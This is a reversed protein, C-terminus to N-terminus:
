PLVALRQFYLFRDTTATLRYAAVVQSWDQDEAMFAQWDFPNADFYGSQRDIILLDPQHSLIDDINDGRNRAAIAALRACVAAERACDTRALRNIAGPVLWNAPYRSAWDADLALAVPPGAYVHSSLVIVGDVQGLGSAIRSIESVAGNSYLGRRVSGAVLGALAVAVALAAVTMGSRSAKIMLLVCGIMAFTRFPIAHYGFGTGQMLYSALGAGSLVLFVGAERNQGRAGLAVLVPVLMLLAEFQLQALLPGVESGYAGYVDRAIGLIETLYLPHVVAVYGVYALGLGLFTLNAASVVPWLSRLRVCHFVTVVIPFVVFHPKLCVGVAAFAASAVDQGRSGPASGIQRLAWPMALIVLLQERQAMNNLAPVVFAAAIGVLMLAAWAPSLQRDSGIIASCWWLSLFILLSLAIYQGNTDSVGLLDAFLLAPVTLYFNLPPNVEMVDVYLTAGGLWDRTAILYWATDHNLMRGWFLALVSVALLLPLVLGSPFLGITPTRGDFVWFRLVLFTMGPVLVAVAAMATAFSFGLHSSVVWVTGSSTALGFLSLFVFRLFQPGSRMEVGFTFRAHGVYSVLVAASFGALNAQQDSIALLHRLVLACLVHVVTALGGVGVFRTFQAVM